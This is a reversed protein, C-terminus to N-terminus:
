IDTVATDRPRGPLVDAYVRMTLAPNAHGLDKSVTEVPERNQLRWTAHTHRLGHMGLWRVGAAEAAQAMYREIGRMHEGFLFGDKGTAALRRFAEQAGPSVGVSRYARPTKLETNIDGFSPGRQREVRLQDSRLDGERLGMLEGPRLGTAVGLRVTDAVRTRGQRELEAVMSKVEHREWARGAHRRKPQPVGPARDMVNTALQGRRFAAAYSAKLWKMAAYAAAPPLGEVVAERIRHPDVKDAQVGLFPRCVREIRARNKAYDKV